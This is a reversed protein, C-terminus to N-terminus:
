RRLQHALQLDLAVGGLHPNRLVATAMFAMDDVLLADEGHHAVAQLQALYRVLPFGERTLM